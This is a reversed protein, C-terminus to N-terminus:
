PSGSKPLAVPFRRVAAFVTAGLALLAFVVISLVVDSMTYLGPYAWLNPLAGIIVAAGSIAVLETLRRGNSQGHLSLLLLASCTAGILICWVWTLGPAESFASKLTNFIAIPKKYAYLVVADLPHEEIAEFFARRMIDDHFRPKMQGTWVSVRAPPSADSGDWPIFHTRDLYDMEGYAGLADAGVGDGGIYKNISERVRPAFMEPTFALGLYASHWVVHHPLVDDTFYIPHLEVRTYVHDAALGFVMLLIPWQATARVLERWSREGRARQLWVRLAAVIALTLLLVFIWSVSGRIRWALILIFLEIAAGVLRGISIGRGLLFIFYWMPVLALTSGNRMGPFTPAGTSFANLHLEVYFAFLTCLLAVLAYTDDHYTVIFVMASFALVVFFLYYYSQIQLGFLRFAIKFFDVEGMDDYWTTVLTRDSLYGIKQPGLSAAARLADNMLEANSSNEILIPDNPVKAGRNWIEVLKDDVSSLGVYGLHLGYISESLAISIARQESAPGWSVKHDMGRAIGTLATLAIIFTALLAAVVPRVVWGNARYWAEANM